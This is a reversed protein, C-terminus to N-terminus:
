LHGRAIHIIEVVGLGLSAAAAALFIPFAVLNDTHELAVGVCVGAFALLTSMFLICFGPDKM